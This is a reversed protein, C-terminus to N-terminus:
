EEEQAGPNLVEQATESEWLVLLNLIKRYNKIAQMLYSAQEDTVISHVLRGGKRRSWEHYPGHRAAPDKACRCNPRGCVKTRSHLTGSAAFDIADIARRLEKTRQRIRTRSPRKRRSM